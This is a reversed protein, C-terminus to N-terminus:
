HAHFKSKASKRRNRAMRYIREFDNWFDDDERGGRYEKVMPEAAEWCEIISSRWKDVVFFKKIFRKRVM